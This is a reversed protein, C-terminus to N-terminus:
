FKIRLPLSPWYKPQYIDFNKDHIMQLTTELYQIEKAKDGYMLELEEERELGARELPADSSIKSTLQNM